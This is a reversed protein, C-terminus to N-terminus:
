DDFLVSIEHNAQWELLTDIADIVEELARQPLQEGRNLKDALTAVAQELLPTGTYCCAGKLAHNSEGIGDWDGRDQARALEDRHGPLADLLM